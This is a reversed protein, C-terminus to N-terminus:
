ARVIFTVMFYSFLFFSIDRALINLYYFLFGFLSYKNGDKM